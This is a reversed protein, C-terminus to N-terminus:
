QANPQRLWSAWKVYANNEIHMVRDLDHFGKIHTSNDNHM